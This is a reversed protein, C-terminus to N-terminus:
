PADAITGSARPREKRAAQERRLARWNSLGIALCAAMLVVVLGSTGYFVVWEIPRDPPWEPSQGGRLAVAILLPGGFTAITMLGLLVFPLRPVRATM